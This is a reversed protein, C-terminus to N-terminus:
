ARTLLYRVRVVQAQTQEVPGHDESVQLLRWGEEALRDLERMAAQTPFGAEFARPRPELDLVVPETDSATILAARWTYYTRRHAAYCQEFPDPTETLEPYVELAHRRVFSAGGGAKVEHRDKGFRVFDVTVRSKLIGGTDRRVVVDRQVDASQEFERRRVRQAEVKEAYTLWAPTQEFDARAAPEELHSTRGDRDTVEVAWLAVQSFTLTAHIM